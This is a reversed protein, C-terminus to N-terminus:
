TLASSMSKFPINGLVHVLFSFFVAQNMECISNLHSNNGSYSFRLAIYAESHTKNIKNM